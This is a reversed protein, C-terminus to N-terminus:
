LADRVDQRLRIITDHKSLMTDDFLHPAFAPEDDVGREFRWVEQRQEFHTIFRRNQADIDINRKRGDGLM